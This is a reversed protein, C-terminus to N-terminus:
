GSAHNALPFCSSEGIVLSNSVDALREVRPGFALDGKDIVSFIAFREDVKNGDDGDLPITVIESVEDTKLDIELTLWFGDKSHHVITRIRYVIRHHVSKLISGRTSVSVGGDRVTKPVNEPSPRLAAGRWRRILLM